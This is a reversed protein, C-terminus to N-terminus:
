FFKGGFEVYFSAGSGRYYDFYKENTINLFTASIHTGNKFNWGAKINILFRSTINDFAFKPTKNSISTYAFSQGQGQISGYFGLDGGYNLSFGGMYRPIIPIQHGNNQPNQPDKVLIAHTYTFNGTLYLAGYIKQELEMEVGSFRTRGGNVNLFPKDFTGIGSQYIGDYMETQYYYLKAMGGYPNRQEVGIDFQFGYEPHLNPNSIQIMGSHATAFLERANPARFALGMSGKFTTYKFPSYNIAFKPSPFFQNTGKFTHLGPDIDSTADRTSLNFSRWYDLRLGMNTSVYKNWNAQWSIFAAGTGVSVTDRKENFDYTKWFEKARYNPMENDEIKADAFRGQLGILLIHKENIKHNIIASLYNNTAYNDLSWGRGGFVFSNRGQEAPDKKGPGSGAGKCTDVGNCGDAWHSELNVTSLIVDLSTDESFNHKHGLSIVYNVEKRFGLWASGLFPNYFGSTKQGGNTAPIEYDYGYVTGGNRGKLYSIPSNQAEAITSFNIALNTTDNDNWDYEARGRADQTFFATRGAWGVNAGNYIPSGDTYTATVNSAGSPISAIAPVRYAGDSTTFAYSGRVRLRKDLFVNGLAVYGRTLNKEAGGRVMENGYGIIAQGELKKPKKSIFNIVGGLAGTGYLSSFPGRVIEIGEIDYTAISQIIRYDSELDNLIVGDLMLITGYPIGRVYVQPRSNFGINAKVHVGSMRGLLDSLQRNQQLKIRKESVYSVNGPAETILTPMRNATTVVPTLDKLEGDGESAVLSKLKNEQVQEAKKDTELKAEEKKSEKKSDKSAVEKSAPGDSANQVLDGEQASLCSALFVAVLIKSKTHIEM